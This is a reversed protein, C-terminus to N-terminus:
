IVVVSDDGSYCLVISQIHHTSPCNAAAWEAVKMFGTTPAVVVFKLWKAADSPENPNFEVEWASLGTKPNNPDIM